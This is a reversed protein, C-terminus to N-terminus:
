KMAGSPPTADAMRAASAVDMSVRGSAGSRLSALVVAELRTHVGLKELIRQVHNRVTPVAICLEGAIGQTGLGRSMLQLIEEERATLDQGHVPSIGSEGGASVLAAVASAAKQMGTVDHFIHVLASAEQVSSPVFIHTISLWRPEGTKTSALVRQAPAVKGRRACQISFCDVSCIPVDGNASAPGSLIQHCPRGVVEGAKWGLVREAAANWFFVRQRMNVSFVGDPSGALVELVDDPEM